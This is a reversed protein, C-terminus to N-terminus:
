APGTSIVGQGCLSVTRGMGVDVGYCVKFWATVEQPLLSQEAIQRITEIPMNLYLHNILTQM